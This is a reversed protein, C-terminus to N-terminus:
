YPNSRGSHLAEFANVFEKAAADKIRQVETVRPMQLVSQGFPVRIWLTFIVILAVLVGILLTAERYTFRKIM